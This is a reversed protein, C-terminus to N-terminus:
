SVEWKTVLGLRESCRREAQRAGDLWSHLEGLTAKGAEWAVPEPELAAGLRLMGFETTPGGHTRWEKSVISMNGRMVSVDQRQRWSPKDQWRWRWWLNAQDVGDLEILAMRRTGDCPARMTRSVVQGTQLRPWADVKGESAALAMAQLQETTVTDGGRLTWRTTRPALIWGYYQQEAFIETEHTFAPGLLEVAIVPVRDLLHVGAVHVRGADTKLETGPTLESAAVWDRYIREIRLGDLRTEELLLEADAPLMMAGGAVLRRLEATRDPPAEGRQLMRGGRAM